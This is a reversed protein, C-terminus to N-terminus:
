LKLICRIRGVLQAIWGGNQRWLGKKVHGYLKVDVLIAEPLGMDSLPLAPIVKSFRRLLGRGHTGSGDFGTNTVLTIPPVRPRHAPIPRYEVRMTQRKERGNSQYSIGSEIAAPGM